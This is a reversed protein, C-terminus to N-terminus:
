PGSLKSLTASGSFACDQSGAPTTYHAKGSFADSMSKGDSTTLTITDYTVDATAGQGLEPVAFSCAKDSGLTATQNTLTYGFNCGAADLVVLGGGSQEQVTIDGTLKQSTTGTPCVVNNNGSAFQWTGLFQETPTPAATTTCAALLLVLRM